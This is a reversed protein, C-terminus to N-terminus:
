EQLTIPNLAKALDESFRKAKTELDVIRLILLLITAVVCITITYKVILM